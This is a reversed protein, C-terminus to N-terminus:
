NLIFEQNPLEVPEFFENFRDKWQPVDLVMAMCKSRRPSM